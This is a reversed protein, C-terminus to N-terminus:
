PILSFIGLLSHIRRVLSEPSAHFSWARLRLVDLQVVTKCIFPSQSHILANTLYDSEM